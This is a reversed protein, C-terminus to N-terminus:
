AINLNLPEFFELSATNIEQMVVTNENEISAQVLKSNILESPSTSAIPSKLEYIKLIKSIELDQNSLISLMYQPLLKFTCSAKVESQLKIKAEYATWYRYFLEESVDNVKLNIHALIEKLKRKKMLEVDVGIPNKDFGVLVIDKSHSISFHLDSAAFYPKSNRIKIESNEIGYFERAVTKVLFRGFAHEIRRKESKYKPNGYLLIFNLLEDKTLTGLFNDLNLYFIDM